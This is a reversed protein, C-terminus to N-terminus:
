YVITMPYEYKIKTGMPTMTQNNLNMEALNKEQRKIMRIAERKVASNTPKKRQQYMSRGQIKMSFTNGMAM